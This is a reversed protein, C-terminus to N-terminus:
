KVILCSTEILLRAVVAHCVKLVPNDLTAEHANVLTLVQVCVLAPVVVRAYLQLDDYNNFEFLPINNSTLM